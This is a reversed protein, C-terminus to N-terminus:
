ARVVVPTGPLVDRWLRRLVDNRVRVCGNSAAQGLLEPRDTGHIAIPGGQVWNTLVESFASIGIAGPGFPGGPDSPVLRQNVYYAGTPTPTQPRGVAAITTFVPRGRRFLTVRRESLDVLVRTRVTVLRVDAARVWGTAGNPKVPLQVRYWAPACDRTLRAGLVGLVTPVGNVNRLGLRVLARGAPTRRAPTPRAVIAARSAHQTRLRRYAGPACDPRSRVPTTAPQSADAAKAPRDPARAEVAVPEERESTGGCAAVALVTFLLYPAHKSSM